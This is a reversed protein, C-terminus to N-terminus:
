QTSGEQAPSMVMSGTSPLTYGRGSVTVIYRPHPPDPEVKGRLRCLHVWLSALSGTRAEGWAVALMLGPTVVCGRRQYLLKLLRSEIPTLSITHGDVRAHRQHFNVQLREDIIVDAQLVAEPTRRLSNRRM